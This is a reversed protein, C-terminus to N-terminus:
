KELQKKYKELLSAKKTVASMWAESIPSKRGRGVDSLLKVTQPDIYAGSGSETDAREVNRSVFSGAVLPDKAMGRNMTYLTNFTRQVAKPDQKKLGPAASMMDKFARPKEIKERLYSFGAAGAQGAAAVGAAIGAAGLHQGLSKGSFQRKLAGTFARWSSAKKEIATELKAVDLEKLNRDLSM